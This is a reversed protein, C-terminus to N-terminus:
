CKKHMVIEGVSKQVGRGQEKIILNGFVMSYSDGRAMM